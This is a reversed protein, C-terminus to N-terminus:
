SGLRFSRVAPHRSLEAHVTRRLQGRGKGHSVRLQVVGRARCADIYERVLPGVDKPAYTHLDLVGDLPIEVPTQSQSPWGRTVGVWPTRRLGLGEAVPWRPRLDNQLVRERCRGWGRRGWRAHERWGAPGLFELVGGRTEGDKGLFVRQRCGGFLAAAILDTVETVANLDVKEFTHLWPNLHVSCREVHSGLTDTEDWA